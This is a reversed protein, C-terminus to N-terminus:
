FTTGGPQSKEAIQPLAATIDGLHEHVLDLVTNGGPTEHLTIHLRSDYIPGHRHYNIEVRTCGSARVPV